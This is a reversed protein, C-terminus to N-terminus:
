ILDSNLLKTFGCESYPDPDMFTFIPYIPSLFYTLNFAFIECESLTKKNKEGLHNKVKFYFFMDGTDPDLNLWFETDPDIQTWKM